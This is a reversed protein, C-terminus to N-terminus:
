NDEDIHLYIKGDEAKQSSLWPTTKVLKYFNNQAIGEREFIHLCQHMADKLLASHTPSAQLFTRIESAVEDRWAVKRPSTHEKVKAHWLRNDAEPIEETLCFMNRDANLRRCDKLIYSRVSSKNMNMGFAALHNMVDDLTFRIHELCYEHIIEAPMRQRQCDERYVWRSKGVPICWPFKRGVVTISTCKNGGSREAYKEQLQASAVDKEEYIIRALGQTVNLHEFRLQFLDESMEEFVEDHKLLLRILDANLETGSKWQKQKVIKALIDYTSMPRVEGQLLYFLSAYHVNFVRKEINEDVLIKQTKIWPITTDGVVVKKCMLLAIAELRSSDLWRKEKVMCCTHSKSYANLEEQFDKRLRIGRTFKKSPDSSLLEKRIEMVIMRIRERTVPRIGDVGAELKESIETLSCGEVYFSRLVFATLASIHRLHMNGIQKLLLDVQEMLDLEMDKPLRPLENAYDTKRDPLHTEQSSNELVDDQFDFELQLQNYTNKRRPM